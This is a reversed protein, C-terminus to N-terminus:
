KTTGSPTSKVVSVKIYLTSNQSFPRGATYSTSSSDTNQVGEATGLPVWKNLPAMITTDIQQNDFQQDSEVNEQERVRRVTLKVQSGQLVPHVLLGNQINHQEYSVGTALLGVGVSTVVPVQEGTAVFASEGSMVKVSQSRQVEYQPQTSYSVDNGDQSSLWEPDGQYVTINFVVPPVDIKHLVNRIQTLTQPSVNVILTQGSGSVKEDTQLLPQILQIVKDAQLYNLEIVKTIMQQSFANSSILLIVLLWRKIM